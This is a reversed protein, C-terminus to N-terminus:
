SETLGLINSARWDLMDVSLDALLDDLTELAKPYLVPDNVFNATERWKESQVLRARITTTVLDIWTPASYTFNLSLADSLAETKHWAGRPVFLMSGPELTYEIANEPISIPMESDTYSKLEPDIELGLTHRTMPNKVHTNPAIWWKKTGHVQLVFNINQDFHTATGFGKKIAYILSRSYTLNSLGLDEKIGMLWKNITSDITNPDDFYLGRGSHFLAKAESISVKISNGEDAIGQNYSGVEKPWLKLLDDISNLLSLSFLEKFSETQNHVIFPRDELYYPM